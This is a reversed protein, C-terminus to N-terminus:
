ANAKVKSEREGTDPLSDRHPAIRARWWAITQTLGADLDWRPRWDLEETVRSVDAVV